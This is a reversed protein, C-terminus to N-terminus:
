IIRDILAEGTRRERLMLVTTSAWPISVSYSLPMNTILPMNTFRVKDVGFDLFGGDFYVLKIGEKKAKGLLVFLRGRCTGM